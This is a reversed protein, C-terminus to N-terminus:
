DVLLVPADEDIEMEGGCKPCRGEVPNWMALMDRKGCNPCCPGGYAEDSISSYLVEVVEKCNGCKFNYAEGAMLTYHGLSTSDVSYGCKKCKYANLKAM